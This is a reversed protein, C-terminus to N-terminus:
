EEMRRISRIAVIRHCGSLIPVRVPPLPAAMTLVVSRARCRPFHAELHLWWEQSYGSSDATSTDAICVITSPSLSAWDCSTGHQIENVNNIGYQSQYADPNTVTFAPRDWSAVIPNGGPPSIIWNSVLQEIAASQSTWTVAKNRTPPHTYLVGTGEAFYLLNSQSPDFRMDGNSLWSDNAWALWPIDTASIQRQTPGVWNRGGNTSLVLKGNNTGVYVDNANSPNVAISHCDNGARPVSSWNGIYKQLHGVGSNDCLWVIGNQDVIM